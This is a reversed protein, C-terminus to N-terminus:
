IHLCKAIHDTPELVITVLLQIMYVVLLMLPTLLKDDPTYVPGWGVHDSPINSPAQVLPLPYPSKIM